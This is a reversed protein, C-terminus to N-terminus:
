CFLCLHFHIAGTGSPETINATKVFSMSLNRLFLILKPKVPHKLLLKLLLCIQILPTQCLPLSHM